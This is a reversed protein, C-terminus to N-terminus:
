KKSSKSASKKKSSTKSKEGWRWEPAPGHDSVVKILVALCIAAWILYPIFYTEQSDYSQRGIWILPALYAIFFIGLTLWGERKTPMGWGYGYKKTQFWYDDKKKDKAMFKNYM